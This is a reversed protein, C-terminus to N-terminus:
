VGEYCVVSLIGQAPIGLEENEPIFGFDKILYKKPRLERRLVTACEILNTENIGNGNKNQKIYIKYTIQDVSGGNHQRPKIQFPDVIAVEIGEVGIESPPYSYGYGNKPLITIAPETEGGDYIYQGIRNGLIELIDTRLTELEM